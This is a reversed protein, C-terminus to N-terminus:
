NECFIRNVIALIRYLIKPDNIRDLLSNIFRRYEDPSYYKETNQKAM